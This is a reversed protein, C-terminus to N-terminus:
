VLPPPNSLVIAAAGGLALFPGYAISSRMGTRRTVLLAASWVGGALVGLVLAPIVARGLLFGLMAALKVDGMGFGGRALLALGYFVAFTAVGAFVVELLASRQDAARAIVALASVPLTIRNPLLRTAVDIAALAVLVVQVLAWAAADADSGLHVFTAVALAAALPGAWWTSRDRGLRRPLAAGMTRVTTALEAASSAPAM